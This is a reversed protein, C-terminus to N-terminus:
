QSIPQVACWNGWMQRYATEMAQAFDTQDGLPSHAVRARLDTRIAALREYDAALDLAIALYEETTHAVWSARDIANLLAWGMRGSTRDGLLSVVPVGMWLAELTTTAGNYPFPDLAIDVYTYYDLHAATMPVHGVFELRLPDIGYTGLGEIFRQQIGLNATQWSKLLLSSNPVALLIKALLALTEPTVKMLNNFSGFTIYGKHLCPPLHVPPAEACPAYCHVPRHLNWVQESFFETTQPDTLWPDSLRYDMTDLGTSGPFGLWTVQVPAPKHAFVPLRNNNTHGGLDVLIDIQDQQIQQVVQADSLEVISRWHDSLGQLKATMADPKLVHAYCFIEVVLRNHAKLLPEFFWACSHNYLDASVYGVRLRREPDPINAHDQCRPIPACAQAFHDLAQQWETQDLHPLYQMALLLNDHAILWQPHLRLAQQYLAIAETFKGQLLYIGALSNHAEALDPQITMANQYREVAGEVDGYAYLAVGLNYQISATQPQLQSAKTLLQIGLDPQGSRHYLLGLNHLVEPHDPQIQLLQQYLDRAQDLHGTQVYQQALALGKAIAKTERVPAPPTKGFGKFKKM